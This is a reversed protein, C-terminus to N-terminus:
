VGASTTEASRERSERTSDHQDCVKLIMRKWRGYVRMEPEPMAEDKLSPEFFEEQEDINMPFVPTESTRSVTRPPRMTTLPARRQQNPTSTARTAAPAAAKPATRTRTASTTTRAAQQRLNRITELRSERSREAAELGIARSSLQRRGEATDLINEETLRTLTETVDTPLPPARRNAGTAGYAPVHRLRMQCTQCAVWTAHGNSGSPSGRYCAAPTHSGSCPPGAWRPDRLDPGEARSWDFKTDSQPPAPLNSRPMVPSSLEASRGAWLPPHLMGRRVSLALHCSWSRSATTLALLDNDM